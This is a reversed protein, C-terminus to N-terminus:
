CRLRPAAPPRHDIVELSTTQSTQSPLVAPGFALDDVIRHNSDELVSKLRSRWPAFSAISVPRPLRTATTQAITSDARQAVSSQFQRSRDKSHRPGAASSCLLAL